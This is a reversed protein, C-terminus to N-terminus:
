GAPPELYPVATPDGKFEPKLWTDALKTLTGDSKMEAIVKDITALNTSGKPVIGGYLENTKFQAPVEANQKGAQPLEIVTDMMIADISGAQLAQFLTGLDKFAKAEKNPKIKDAVFTQGTTGTQVGWQLTKLTTADVKTGANVMVGQDASFYDTTFDVVKARADTITVESLALDYDSPGGTQGAVLADFNVNKVKVAEATYGLRKAIEKGMEFEFGGTLKDPDDGNWWGPAPLSVQITFQGAKAPKFDGYKNAGGATSSSSSSSANSGGKNSSSGCAALVGVMALLAVVAAASRTRRM